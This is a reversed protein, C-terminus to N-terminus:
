GWLSRSLRDLASLIRDVGSVYVSTCVVISLVVAVMIAVETLQPWTIRGLEFRIEDFFNDLGGIATRPTRPPGSPPALAM